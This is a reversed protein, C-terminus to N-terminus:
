VADASVHDQVLHKALLTSLWIDAFLLHNQFHLADTMKQDGNMSFQVVIKSSTSLNACKLLGVIARVIWSPQSIM